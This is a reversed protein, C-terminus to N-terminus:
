GLLDLMAIVEKGRHVAELLIGVQLVPNDEMMSLSSSEVGIRPRDLDPSVTAAFLRQLIIRQDNCGADARLRRERSQLAIM